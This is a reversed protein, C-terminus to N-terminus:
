SRPLADVFELLVETAPAGAVGLNGNLKGSRKTFKDGITREPENVMGRALNSM